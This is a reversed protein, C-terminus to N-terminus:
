FEYNEGIKKFFLIEKKDKMPQMGINEKNLESLFYEKNRELLNIIKFRQTRDGEGIPISVLFWDLPLSVSGMSNVLEVLQIIKKCLVKKTLV